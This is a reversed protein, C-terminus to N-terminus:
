ERSRDGKWRWSGKYKGSGDGPVSLVEALVVLLLLPVRGSAMGAELAQVPPSCCLTLPWPSHQVVSLWIESLHISLDLVIVRGGRSGRSHEGRPWLVSGGSPDCLWRLCVGRKRPSQFSGESPLLKVPQSYNWCQYVPLTLRSKQLKVRFYQDRRKRKRKEPSRPTIPPPYTNCDQDFGWVSSLLLLEWSCLSCPFFCITNGRASCFNTLDRYLGTVSITVCWQDLLLWCKDGAGPVSQILSHTWSTHTYICTHGGGRERERESWGVVVRRLDCSATNIHFYPIFWLSLESCLLRSKTLLADSLSPSVLLSVSLSHM